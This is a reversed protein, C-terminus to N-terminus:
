VPHNYESWAFRGKRVVWHKGDFEIVDETDVAADLWERADEAAYGEDTAMEVLKEAEQDPNEAVLELMREYGDSSV